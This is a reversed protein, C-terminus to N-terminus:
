ANVEARSPNPDVLKQEISKEINQLIAQAVKGVPLENEKLPLGVFYWFGQSDHLVNLQDREHELKSISRTFGAILFSYYLRVLMLGTCGLGILIGHVVSNPEYGFSESAVTLGVLILLLLWDTKRVEKQAREKAEVLGQITRRFAALQGRTVLLSEYIRLAEIKVATTM